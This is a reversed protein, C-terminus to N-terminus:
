RPQLTNFTSGPFIDCAHDNLKDFLPHRFRGALSAPRSGATFASQHRILFKGDITLLYRRAPAHGYIERHWLQIRVCLRRHRHMDHPAPFVARSQKNTGRDMTILEIAHFCYPAQQFIAPQLPHGPGQHGHRYDIYVANNMM